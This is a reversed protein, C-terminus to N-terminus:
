TCQMALYTEQAKEKPLALTNRPLDDLNELNKLNGLLDLGFLRYDMSRLIEAIEGFIDFGRHQRFAVLTEYYIVPKYKQLTKTGGKIVELEMGEVDIKVFDLRTVNEGTVLEDLTIVSVPIGYGDLFGANGRNKPDECWFLEDKRDSLGMQVTRVRSKIEPNLELNNVLRSFIPPGPEVALVIGDKGVLKAMLMTLAGVNAGIDAAVCGRQLFSGIVRSTCPDYEGTLMELEIPYLTNINVRLDGLYRDYVLEKNPPILFRFERRKDTLWLKAGLPILPIRGIIRFIIKIFEIMGRVVDSKM